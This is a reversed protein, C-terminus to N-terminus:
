SDNVMQWSLARPRLPLWLRACHPRARTRSVDPPFRVSVLWGEKRRRHIARSPVKVVHHLPGRPEHWCPKKGVLPEIEVREALAVFQERRALELRVLSRLERLTAEARRDLNRAERRAIKLDRPPVFPTRSIWTRSEALIRSHGAKEDFGGFDAAQGVGILVLQM